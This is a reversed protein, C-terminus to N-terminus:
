VKSCSFQKSRSWCCCGRRRRCFFFFLFFFFIGWPHIFERPFFFRKEKMKMMMMRKKKKLGDERGEEIRGINAKKEEWPENRQCIFLGGEVKWRGGVWGRRSSSSSFTSSLYTPLYTCTSTREIYENM